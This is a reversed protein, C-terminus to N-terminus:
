RRRRRVRRQVIVARGARDVDRRELAAWENTRLGTEAAFVVLPGYVPGLEVALADVEDRRSRAAAGRRAARPNRGAEVAPNRAIYRWRVAAGLAQRLARPSGTARRTPPPEARWRPSTTPPARSTACRGTASRERARARAARELTESTRAAVTAGHRDLFLDCFADFTIEAIPRAAISGRRSTRPSGTARRPRRRSARDAAPAQRGRALPHRLRRATKFVSGRTEAPM